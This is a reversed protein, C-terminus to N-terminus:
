AYAPAEFTVRGLRGARLDDLLARAARDYDFEGGRLVAGRFKAIQGLIEIPSQTEDCHYRCYLNGKYQERLKEISFLALEAADLTASDAIHMMALKRILEPEVVKRQLVGPTDLLLLNSSVRVWQQAKTVGPLNGVKTSKKGRLTNILTSKGVNPMGVVICKVDTDKLIGGRKSTKEERLRDAYGTLAQSFNKATAKIVFVDYGQCLFYEKWAKTHQPDALDEKNLVVVHRTNKALIDVYPNKSAFPVRADLVELILDVTRIKQEIQDQAKKMHGPFWDM